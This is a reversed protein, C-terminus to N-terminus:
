KYIRRSCISTMFVSTMVYWVRVSEMLDNTSLFPSLPFSVKSMDSQHFDFQAFSDANVLTVKGSIQHIIDYIYICM